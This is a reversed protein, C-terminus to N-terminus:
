NLGISRRCAAARLSDLALSRGHGTQRGAQLRMYLASLRHTSSTRLLFAMANLFITAPQLAELCHSGHALSPRYSISSPCFGTSTRCGAM